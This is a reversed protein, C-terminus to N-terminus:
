KNVELEGKADAYFFGSNQLYNSLIKNNVDINMESGLVPPEGTQERIWNRVRSEKEPDGALHYFTLKFRIGLAKRNPKPRIANELESELSKKQSKSMTTDLIKVKSGVYLSEGDALHKTNSCSALLLMGIGTTLMLCIRHIMA